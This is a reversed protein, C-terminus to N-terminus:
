SKISFGESSEVDLKFEFRKFAMNQSRHKEIPNFVFYELLNGNRFLWRVDYSLVAIWGRYKGM